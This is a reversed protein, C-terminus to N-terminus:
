EVNTNTTENVELIAEKRYVVNVFLTGIGFLAVLFGFVGGIYPIQSIAWIVLASILSALVFKVKGEWKVLKALVSGFYISAFATGSMCIAVYIFTIALAPIFCARSCLLLILAFPIVVLSLIGIGFSVFAKKTDMNTVRNIFKPTLYTALLIIILTYVFANMIDFLSSSIREIVHKEEVIEKNYSIEGTVVGEPISIESKASYNFNGGILTDNESAINYYAASIYANRRVKGNLNFTNASVRLDRYVFANSELTFNNAFAYLDYVIGDISIEDAVAFLSNYVYGNKLTLKKACVFLDGGIEGSVTVENAFVFANGDVIQNVEVINGTLYLDSNVWSSNTNNESTTTESNVDESNESIPIIDSGESTRPEITAFSLTSILTLIAVLLFLINFKKKLM